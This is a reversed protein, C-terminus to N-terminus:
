FPVDNPAEKKPTKKPNKACKKLHREECDIAVASGFPLVKYPKAGKAHTLIPGGASIVVCPNTGVTTRAYWDATTRFQVLSGVEYKPAADHMAIVKKAYKNECMKKYQKESPIFNDNTLIPAALGTFYGTKTYYEACIRAVRRHEKTYTDAWKKSENIADESLKSNEIRELIEIQRSSLKGRKNFQEYLSEVFTREWNSLLESKALAIKLRDPNMIAGNM